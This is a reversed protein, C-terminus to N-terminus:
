ERGRLRGAVQAELDFDYGAGWVPDALRDPGDVRTTSCFWAYTEEHGIRFGREV